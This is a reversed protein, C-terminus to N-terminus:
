DNSVGLLSALTDLVFGEHERWGSLWKVLEDNDEFFEQRIGCTINIHEQTAGSDNEVASALFTFFLSSGWVDNNELADNNLTVHHSVEGWGLEMIRPHALHDGIWEDPSDHEARLGWSIVAAGLADQEVSVLYRTMLEVSEYKEGLRIGGTQIVRIYDEDAYLTMGNEYSMESFYSTMESKPKEWNSPVVGRSVLYGHHINDIAHNRELGSHVFVAIRRLEFGETKLM